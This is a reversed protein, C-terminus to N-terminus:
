PSHRGIIAADTRVMETQAITLEHSRVRALLLMAAVDCADRLHSHKQYEQMLTNRQIVRNQMALSLESPEAEDSEFAEIAAAALMANNDLETQKADGSAIVNDAMAVALEARQAPGFREESLEVEGRNGDQLLKRRARVREYMASRRVPGVFAEEFSTGFRAGQMVFAHRAEDMQRKQEAMQEPGAFLVFDTNQFVNEELHIIADAIDRVRDWFREEKKWTFFEELEGVAGYARVATRGISMAINHYRNVAFALDRTRELVGLGSVALQRFGLYGKLLNNMVRRKRITGKPQTEALAKEGASLGDLGQQPPQQPNADVSGTALAALVIILAFNIRM